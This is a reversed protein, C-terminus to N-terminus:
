IGRQDRSWTIKARVVEGGTAPRIISHWYEGSAVENSLISLKDGGITEGLYNVELLTAAHTRHFELPYSDLLWGIYRSNNVHGNVDLDSYRVVVEMVPSAAECAALKEPDRELARRDGSVKIGSVLKDIRQPKRSSIDLVLWASAGGLRRTGTADFMEFDRLAFVSKAARPWTHVTVTEGWRPTRELKMVLRSLVWIRNDQQLREYGVGLAEAHNWAAEQFHRCLSELTVAKKLDVEYSHARFTESWVASDQAFEQPKELAEEELPSENRM